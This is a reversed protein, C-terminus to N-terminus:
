RSGDWGNGFVEKELEDIRLDRLIRKARLMRPRLFRIFLFAIFAVLTAGVLAWSWHGRLADNVMSAINAAAVLAWLLAVVRYSVLDNRAKREAAAKEREERLRQRAASEAM